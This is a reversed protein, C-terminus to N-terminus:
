TYARLIYVNAISANIGIVDESTLYTCIKICSFDYHELYIVCYQLNLESLDTM